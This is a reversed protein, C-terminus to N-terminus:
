ASSKTVRGKKTGFLGQLMGNEVVEDKNEDDQSVFIENRRKRNCGFKMFCVVRLIQTWKV